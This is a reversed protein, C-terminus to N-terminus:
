AAEREERTLAPDHWTLFWTKKAPVEDDVKIPDGVVPLGMLMSVDKLTM